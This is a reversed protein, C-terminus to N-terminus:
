AWMATAAPAWLTPAGVTTRPLISSPPTPCTACPRAVDRSQQDSLACADIADISLPLEDSLQESRRASWWWKPCHRMPTAHPQAKFMHLVTIHVLWPYWVALTRAQDSFPQRVISRCPTQKQTPQPHRVAERFPIVPSVAQACRFWPRSHSHGQAQFVTKRYEQQGQRRPARNLTGVTKGTQRRTSTARNILPM